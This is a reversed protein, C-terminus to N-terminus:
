AIRTLKDFIPYYAFRSIRRFYTVKYLPHKPM